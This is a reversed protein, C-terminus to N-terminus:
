LSERTARGVLPSGSRDRAGRRSPVTARSGAGEDGGAAESVSVGAEGGRSARLAAVMALGLMVLHTRYRFGTGANGVSVAYAMLLLLTPYVFAARGGAMRRPLIRADRVLLWLGVLVVLTGTVALQQSINAVQWPYPRFLVDRIRRPLNIVIGKRSSFNVRELALNNANYSGSGWGPSAVTSWDQSVQLRSLSDTSTARLVTPTALFLVLVSVYLVPLARLTGRLVQRVSAHLLLALAGAVLFWGAYPRTGVAILGGLAMLMLGVPDFRRWVKTGGFVMLGSALMLLSERHIVGSFFVNAPELALLWAFLLSARPGAIDHVAIVLLLVGLMAFGVQTFRLAMDSAAFLKIQLAFALEHLRHGEGPLWVDSSFPAAAIGRAHALFTFEDGGRLTTALGSTSVGLVALWRLGLGVFVPAVVHLDPRSRRFARLLLVIAYSSVLAALIVSLLRQLFVDDM